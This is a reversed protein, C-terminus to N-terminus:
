LVISLLKAWFTILFKKFLQKFIGCCAIMVTLREQFIENLINHAQVDLKVVLICNKCHFESYKNEKKNMGKSWVGLPNYM